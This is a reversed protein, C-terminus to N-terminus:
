RNFLRYFRTTSSGVPETDPVTVTELADGQPTRVSNTLVTWEGSLLDDTVCVDIDDTDVPVNIRRMRLAGSKGAGSGDFLFESSLITDSTKLPFRRIPDDRLWKAKYVAYSASRDPLATWAADGTLGAQAGDVPQFGIAQANAPDTLTFDGNWPDAFMPDAVVSHTDLGTLAQWEALTLLNTVASSDASPQQFTVPGGGIRWFLNSDCRDFWDTRIKNFKDGYVSGWCYYFINNEIVADAGRGLHCPAKHYNMAFVNNRLTIRRCNNVGLGFAGVNYVLNDSFIIGDTQQDPYLGKGNGEVWCFVNHIVNSRILTDLNEGVVYIGGLDSLVNQGIDHIRNNEIRNNKSWSASADWNWGIQMGSWNFFGIDNHAVLNDASQGILIGCAGPHLIGGDHIFNNYLTNAATSGHAGPDYGHQTQTREGCCIGGGGLDYLHCQEVRNSTCGRGLDMAHAGVHSVECAMFELNRGAEIQICAPARSAAQGYRWGGSLGAALEPAAFHRFTLGEFRVHDVFKAADADGAISIAAQTVPAVWTQMAMNEAGFPIVTLIGADRDLQWEGPADMSGPANEVVYRKMHDIANGGLPDLGGLVHTATFATHNAEDVESLWVSVTDWLTYVRISVENSALTSWNQLDGPSFQFNHCFWWPEGYYPESPEPPIGQIYFYGENPSRALTYRLDDVFLQHFKWQRGAAEPIYVSYSGGPNLTPAGLKRGGSLIPTEGPYAKYVIPADASGSDQPELVLTPSEYYTGGRVLVTIGDTWGAAKLQRIRDRAGALTVLPDTLTGSWSDNGNTAVHLVGAFSGIGFDPDLVADLGDFVLGDKLEQDSYTSSAINGADVWGNFTGAFATFGAENDVGKFRISGSEYFVQNYSGAFQLSGAENATTLILEGGDVTVEGLQGQDGLAHQDFDIYDFQATGGNVSLRAESGPSGGFILQRTCTILGANILMTAKADGSNHLNMFIARDSDYTGGNIMLTGDNGADRGIKLYGTGTHTLRSGSELVMDGLNVTVNVTVGIDSGDQMVMRSGAQLTALANLAGVPMSSTVSHAQIYVVDGTGPVGASWTGADEWRGSAASSITAARAGVAGCLLILGVLLVRKMASEGM